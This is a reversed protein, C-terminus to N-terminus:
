KDLAKGRSTYFDDHEKKEKVCNKFELLEQFNYRSIVTCQALYDKTLENFVPDKKLQIIQDYEEKTIEAGASCVGGVGVENVTKGDFLM